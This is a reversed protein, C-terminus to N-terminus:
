CRGFEGPRINLDINKLVLNKSGDSLKFEKEIGRIEVYSSM